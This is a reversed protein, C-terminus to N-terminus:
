GTKGSFSTCTDIYRIASSLMDTEHGETNILKPRGTGSVVVRRFAADSARTQRCARDTSIVSPSPTHM